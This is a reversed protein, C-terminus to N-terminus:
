WRGRIRLCPSFLLEAIGTDVDQNEIGAHLVGAVIKATRVAAFQGERDVVEGVVQEGPEQQWAHGVAAARHDSHAFRM